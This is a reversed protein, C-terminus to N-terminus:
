VAKALLRDVKIKNQKFGLEADPLGFALGLVQPYYVVPLNYATQSRAEIKKQNDEYMVSCFPCISVLGDVQLRAVADLKAKSMGLAVAEDIGLISGGCCFKKNDYDVWEAGTVGILEDLSRPAEPDDFGEYIESPKLYHCGYHAALRIGTLPKKVKRRLADLGVDEYLLRVFHKVTVSRTYSRGINELGRNMAERFDPDTNLRRSTETLTGTCASCLTVVDLGEASAIALNRAALLQTAHEDASKVPFGCCAFNEVDVLEIGLARAVSRVALEYNQARVPVTCGLFLAWRKDIKNELDTM